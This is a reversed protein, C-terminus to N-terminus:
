RFRSAKLEIEVFAIEFDNDNIVEHEVGSQRFYAEGTVLEGSSQGAKSRVLLHGTSLPVVVYDYDHRHHGTSSEVPFSWRTVRVRENDIQVVREASPYQPLSMRQTSYHNGVAAAIRHAARERSSYSPM